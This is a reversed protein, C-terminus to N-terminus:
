ARCLGEARSIWLPWGQGGDAGRGHGRFRLGRRPRPCWVAPGDEEVGGHRSAAQVLVERHGQVNDEVQCQHYMAGNMSTSYTKERRVGEIRFLREEIKQTVQNEVEEATAGPYVAIVIGNRM